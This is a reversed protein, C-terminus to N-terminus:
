SKSETLHGTDRWTELLACARVVMTTFDTTDSPREDTAKLDIHPAVYSLANLVPDVDVSDRTREHYATYLHYLQKGLENGDKAAQFWLFLPANFLCQLLLCLHVCTSTVTCTHPVTLSLAAHCHM